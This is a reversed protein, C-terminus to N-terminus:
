RVVLDSAGGNYFSSFCSRCRGGFRDVLSTSRLKRRCDPCNTVHFSVRAHNPRKIYQCDEQSTREKM